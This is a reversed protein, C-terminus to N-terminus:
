FFYSVGVGINLLGTQVQLNTNDSHTVSTYDYKVSGTAALADTLFYAVGGEVRATLGGFSYSDGTAPTTNNMRYGVGVGVFPAVKDQAFFYKVNPMIGFSTNSDGDKVGNYTLDLGVGLALKDAMFYSVDPNVIFTTSTAKVDTEGGKTTKTGMQLNLGVNSGVMWKGKELQGYSVTTAVFAVALLIKKM